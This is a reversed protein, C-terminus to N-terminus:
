KLDYMNLSAACWVLQLVLIHRDVAECVSLLWPLKYILVRKHGKAMM